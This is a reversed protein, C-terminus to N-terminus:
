CFSKEELNKMEWQYDDIFDQSELYEQHIHKFLEIMESGNGELECGFKLLYMVKDFDKFEKKDLIHDLEFVVSREFRSLTVFEKNKLDYYVSKKLSNFEQYYKPFCDHNSDCLLLLKCLQPCNDNEDEYYILEISFFMDEVNRQVWFTFDYEKGEESLICMDYSREGNDYKVENSISTSVIDKVQLTEAVFMTRIKESNRMAYSLFGAYRYKKMEELIMNNKEVIEM